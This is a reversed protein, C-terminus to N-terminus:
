SRRLQPSTPVFARCNSRSVTSAFDSRVRPLEVAVSRRHANLGSRTDIPSENTQDSMPEVLCRGRQCALDPAERLPEPQATRAVLLDSDEPKRGQAPG